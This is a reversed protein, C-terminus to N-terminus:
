YSVTSPLMLAKTRHPFFISGIPEMDNGMDKPVKDLARVSYIVKSTTAM